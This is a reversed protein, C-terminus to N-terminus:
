NNFLDYWTSVTFSYMKCSLSEYHEINISEYFTRL